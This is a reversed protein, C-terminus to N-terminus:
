GKIIEFNEQQELEALMEAVKATVFWTIIVSGRIFKAIFLSFRTLRMSECLDLRIYEICQLTPLDPLEHKTLVEQLGPPPRALSHKHSNPLAELFDDITTSKMFLEHNILYEDMESRLQEGGYKLILHQLLFPNLYDWCANLVVFLQNYDSSNFIEKSKKEIYFQCRDRIPEPLDHIFDHIFYDYKVDGSKDGDILASKLSNVMSKFDSQLKKITERTTSISAEDFDAIIYLM